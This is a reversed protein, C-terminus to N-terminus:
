ITLVWANVVCPRVHSEWNGFDMISVERRATVVSGDLIKRAGPPPPPLPSRTLLCQPLIARRLYLVLSMSVAAGGGGLVCVCQFWGEQM